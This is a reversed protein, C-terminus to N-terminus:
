CNSLTKSVLVVKDYLIRCTNYILKAVTNHILNVVLSTV